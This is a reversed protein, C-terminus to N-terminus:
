KSLFLDFNTNIYYYQNSVNEYVKTHYSLTIDARILHKQALECSQERLVCKFTKAQNKICKTYEPDNNYYEYTYQKSLPTIRYECPCDCIEYEKNVKHFNFIIDFYFIKIFM